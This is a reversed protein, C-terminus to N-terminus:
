TLIHLQEGLFSICQFKLLDELDDSDNNNICFNRIKEGCINLLSQKDMRKFSEITNLLVVSGKCEILENRQSKPHDIDDEKVLSDAGVRLRAPPCPVNSALGGSNM